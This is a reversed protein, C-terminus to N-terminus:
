SAPHRLSVAVLVILSIILIVLSVVRVPVELPVYDGSKDDDWGVATRWIDTATALREPLETYFPLALDDM